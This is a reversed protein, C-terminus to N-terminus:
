RVITHFVMKGNQIELTGVQVPNGTQYSKLDYIYFEDPAMRRGAYETNEINIIVAKWEIRKKNIQVMVDNKQKAYDPIYTFDNIDPNTFNMCNSQGYIYCDFASEKIMDTLQKNVIAKMESVEFLYQDSTVPGGNPNLPGKDNLRLEISKDSKLQEESFIMLYLFVEVTQLNEPLSKHSCIRRARGIVQEIRVPHWYPEMIHVYRTNRLNIGESGSSTIMFVKIIQGYDNNEAVSKLENAINTPILDWEGNYIALIIEKEDTTETGTYLAYSPLGKERIDQINTQWQGTTENKFIRFPIFGNADLVLSFIGLGELTRFQSYILHLGIHDPDQINELIHLFKPSYTQLASVSLFDESNDKLRKLTQQIQEQYHIGGLTDLVEDGELEGDMEADAKEEVKDEVKEEERADEEVKLTNEEVKLTNNINNEEQIPSNDFVIKKIKKSKMNKMIIKNSPQETPIQVKVVTADQGKDEEEEEEERADEVNENIEIDDVPECEGTKKNRRTGKPCRPGGGGNIDTNTDTEIDHSNDNIGYFDITDDNDSDSDTANDFGAKQVKKARKVAREQKEEQSLAPRDLMVYNCYLRSFIRYTSSNQNEDYLTNMDQSVNKKKKANKETEREAVRAKEYIGFQFNSMPIKIVHYDLGLTKTFKPLLNEQASRFYSSLGLIRRKISDTNILEKTNPNIYKEIFGEYDDPLAKYNIIHVTRPVIDIGNQDLLRMVNREFQEDTIHLDTEVVGSYKVNGTKSPKYVNRFGFPNRTLTLIKSSPSYDIYDLTKESQLINRITDTNIKENTKIALQMTWTKIYGRLINFLIAFENPYNIIPTGTLFVIKANQARLLDEYLRTALFKPGGTKKRKGPNTDDKIPSFLPDKKIKNVIRSILNHAEDIIVVANDFINQTFDSTMTKFKSLLLGNYNIFTYKSQIMENLQDDVSKKEEASLTAFNAPKKMNILWAGKKRVIYEMPLNLVNSLISLINQRSMTKQELSIWEWYQNIRYLEDGYKKIEKIYNKRLSAPTLVIIKKVSKMGEAIAISSNTKGSGLGHYLLLGRYPTYLNMYDRVIQQHTLLSTQGSKGINDCSISDKNNELEEKYPEFISNIFQIFKERDNMYYSDVRINIPPAKRPMRDQIKTDGIKVFIESGLQAIGREIPKTIRENKKIEEAKNLFEIEDAKDDEEREEMKNKNTKQITDEEILIKKLTKKPKVNKVKEELIPEIPEIQEIPELDDSINKDLVPKRYVTPINKNHLHRHLNNIIKERNVIEKENRKDIIHIFHNNPQTFSKQGNENLQISEMEPGPVMIKVPKYEHVLLPKHKLKDIFREQEKKSM